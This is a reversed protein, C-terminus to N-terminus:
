VRAASRLRIARSAIPLSISPPHHHREIWDFERGRRVLKVRVVAVALIEGALETAQKETM